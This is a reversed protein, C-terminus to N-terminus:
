VQVYSQNTTFPFYQHVKLVEAVVTALSQADCLSSRKGSNDLVRNKGFHELLLDSTVENQNGYRQRWFESINLWETAYAPVSLGSLLCQNPFNVGLTSYRDTVLIFSNLKYLWESFKRITEVFSFDALEPHCCGAFSIRRDVNLTNIAVANVEAIETQKSKGSLLLSTQFDVAVLYDFRQHQKRQKTSM